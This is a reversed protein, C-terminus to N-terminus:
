FDIGGNVKLTTGTIYQTDILYTITNVLEDITGLRKTPIQEILKTRFEDPIKWTLGKDFYGLQISNCTINKNANELSVTKTFSDIFGKCGSYVGTSIVPREALVSSINIIRGFNNERMKPLCNSVINITGKINVDIQREIKEYNDVNIKHAFIDFNVGSLNIVVDFNNKSFFNSVDEFKTVDVDKSGIPVVTYNKKSILSEYVCSGLGGTGGFIVVKM